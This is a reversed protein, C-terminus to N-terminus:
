LRMLLVCDLQHIKLSTRSTCVNHQHHLRATVQPRPYLVAMAKDVAVDERNCRSVCTIQLPLANTDEVKEGQDMDQGRGATDGEEQM